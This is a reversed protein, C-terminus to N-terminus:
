YLRKNTEGGSGPQAQMISDTIKKTNSALQKAEKKWRSSRGDPGPQFM